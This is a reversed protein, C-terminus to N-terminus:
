IELQQIGDLYWKPQKSNVPKTFHWVERVQETEGEDERMLSDFLVVAELETGQERVELLEATLKLIETKNNGNSSRLQDQIEAFVKDTTLGRIAALDRSDWASQLYRYASEAGALFATQDFDAPVQNSVPVSNVGSAAANKGFLLDTNFGASNSGTAPTSYDNPTVSDSHNTRGYANGAVPQTQRGKFLRFLLFAIGAFVLMDMMNLNEFAGGFFMSGLLGGLALGGLMGMLGGRGAWGQRAAQNQAAAQQQSPSRTPQSTAGPTTSRQYPASYSPKSGFSRGGGMRKAQAEQIGSMLLTMALFITAFIGIKRNM